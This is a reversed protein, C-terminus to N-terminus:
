PTSGPCSFLKVVLLKTNACGRMTNSFRVLKSCSGGFPVVKTIPIKRNRSPEPQGTPTNANTGYIHQTVFWGRAAIGALATSRWTHNQSIHPM